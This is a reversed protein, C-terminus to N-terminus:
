KIMNLYNTLKKLRWVWLQFDSTIPNFESEGYADLYEKYVGGCCGYLKCPKCKKPKVKEKIHTSKGIEWEPSLKIEKRNPYKEKNKKYNICPIKLSVYQRLNKPIDSLKPCMESYKLPSDLVPHPFSMNSNFKKMIKPADIMNQNLMISTFRVNVNLKQLNEVAKSLIDFSGKNQVIKDHTGAKSGYVPIQLHTAGASVIKKAFEFDSLRLGSTQIEIRKYRTKKAFEVIRIINPHNLPENGGIIIIDLKQKHFGEHIIEQIKTSEKRYDFNKLLNKLHKVSSELGRSCFICKYDCICKDLILYLFNGKLFNNKM